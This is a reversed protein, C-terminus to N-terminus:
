IDTEDEDDRADDTGYHTPEVHTPGVVLLSVIVIRCASLECEVTCGHYQLQGVEEARHTLSGPLIHADEADDEVRAAEGHQEQAVEMPFWQASEEVHGDEGNRDRQEGDHCYGDKRTAAVPQFPMVM